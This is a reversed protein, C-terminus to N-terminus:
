QLEGLKGGITQRRLSAEGIDMVGVGIARMGSM